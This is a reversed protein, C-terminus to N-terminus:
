TYCRVAFIAPMAAGWKLLHLTLESTVAALSLTVTWRTQYNETVHALETGNATLAFATVCAPMVNEPHGMLVSEM